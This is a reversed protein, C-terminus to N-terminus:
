LHEPPHLPPQLQHLSLCCIGKSSSSSSSSGNSLGGDDGTVRLGRVERRWRQLDEEKGVDKAGRYEGKVGGRRYHPEGRGVAGRGFESEVDSIVLIAGVRVVEVNGTPACCPPAPCHASTPHRCAAPVKNATALSYAELLFPFPPLCILLCRFSCLAAM